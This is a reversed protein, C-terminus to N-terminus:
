WNGAPHWAGMARLPSGPLLPWFPALLPGEWGKGWAERAQPLSRLFLPCKSSWHHLSPGGRLPAPRPPTAGPPPSARSPNLLTSM